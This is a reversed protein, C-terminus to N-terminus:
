TSSRQYEWGILLWNWNMFEAKGPYLLYEFIEFLLQRDFLGLCVTDPDVPKERRVIMKHIEAKNVLM